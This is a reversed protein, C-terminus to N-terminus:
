KKTVGSGRLLYDQSLKILDEQLMQAQKSAIKQSKFSGPITAAGIMGPQNRWPAPTGNLDAWDCYISAIQGPFARRVINAVFNASKGTSKNEDLVCVRAQGDIFPNPKAPYQGALWRRLDNMTEEPIDLADVRYTSKPDTNIFFFRPLEGNSLAGWLQGVLTALPRAGRDCFVVTNVANEVMQVTVRVMQALLRQREYPNTLYVYGYDDASPLYETVVPRFAPRSVNSPIYFTPLNIINPIILNSKDILKQHNIIIKSTNDFSSIQNNLKNKLPSKIFNKEIESFFPVSNLDKDAFPDNQTSIDPLNEKPM